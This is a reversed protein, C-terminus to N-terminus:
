ESSSSTSREACPLWWWLWLWGAEGTIGGCSLLERSVICSWRPNWHLLQPPPPKRSVEGDVGGVFPCSCCSPWSSSLISASPVSIVIEDLGDHAPVAVIAALQWSTTRWPPPPPVTSGVMFMERVVVVLCVCCCCCRGNRAAGGGRGPSANSISSAEDLGHLVRSSLWAAAAEEEETGSWSPPM